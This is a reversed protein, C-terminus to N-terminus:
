GTMRSREICLYEHHWLWISASKMRKFAHPFMDKLHYMDFLLFYATLSIFLATTWLTTVRKTMWLTTWLALNHGKTMWLEKITVRQHGYNMSFPAYHWEYCYITIKKGNMVWELKMLLASPVAKSFVIHKSQLTVCSTSPIQIERTLKFKPDQKDKVGTLKCSQSWNLLSIWMKMWVNFFILQKDM